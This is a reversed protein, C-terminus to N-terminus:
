TRKTKLSEPNRGQLLDPDEWPRPGRINKWEDFTSDKIKEYESELTIKNARLRKEFEPDLYPSRLPSDQEQAFCADGRTCVHSFKEM